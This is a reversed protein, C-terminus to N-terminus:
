PQEKRDESYDTVDFGFCWKIMKKQFKNFHKNVIVTLEAIVIKSGNTIKPPTWLTGVQGKVEFVEKM